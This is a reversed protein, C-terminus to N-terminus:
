GRRGDTDSVRGGDGLIPMFAARGQRGDGLLNSNANLIPVVLKLHLKAMIKRAGWTGVTRKGVTTWLSELSVTANHVRLKM